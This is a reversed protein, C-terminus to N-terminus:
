LVLNQVIAQRLFYADTDDIGGSKELVEIWALEEFAKDYYMHPEDEKKKM